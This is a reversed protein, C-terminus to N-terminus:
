SIRILGARAGQLALSCSIQSLQRRFRLGTICSWLHVGGRAHIPMLRQLERERDELLHLLAEAAAQTSRPM